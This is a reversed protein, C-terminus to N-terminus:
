LVEFCERSCSHTRLWNKEYAYGMKLKSIQQRKVSVEIFFIWVGLRVARTTNLMRCVKQLYQLSGVALLSNDTQSHSAAYISELINNFTSECVKLEAIRTKASSELTM